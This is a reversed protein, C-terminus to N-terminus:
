VATVELVLASAPALLPTRVGIAGLVSGPLEIEGAAIWPVPVVDRTKAASLPEIVRVRYTLSPDLGPLTLAPPLGWEGMEERVLRYLAWRRDASVSGTLLCGEDTGREHVLEGAHVLPRLRKYEAIWEALQAREGPTFQTIDTEIGASAFLTMAMRLRLDTWRYTTHATEPGVHSGILEPPILAETWRQIRSREVPDNTDSGWVRDTHELIGLDIRGGGSACSEIEVGPHRERLEDLLAYTARTHADVGARGAHVAELLDRNQDWKLFEIPYETLLADFRELVYAYAEPRALDLVQQERWTRPDHDAPGLVWDPHSRALDSDPSIMEPEVWLGFGMGLGRVHDVIPHLGEPWVEPDVFWDGLAANDSRRGRFWGDDLVFREVGVEAAADALAVLPALEHRFYVAEWTNLMVPRPTRPHHPRARLMGHLRASMGDLGEASWSFLAAPAEFSEGPELVLEGPRILEGAGLLSAGEPMRDTRYVSDGSWALHVGWVEGRRESFGPEGLITLLPSDHGTRGRRTERAFSGFVLPRRQPSREHSWYGTFDLLESARAPVPLTADLGSLAVAGDGINHVRHTVRLVGHADFRLESELRLGAGEAILSFGREDREVSRTEWGPLLPAGAASGALGPRGQWGDRETPLITLPWAIDLASSTIQRANAADLAALADGSLPGPDAGWHLVEPLGDGPFAVILASGAAHFRATDRRSPTPM